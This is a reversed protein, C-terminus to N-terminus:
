NSRALQAMQKIIKPKQDMKVKTSLLFFSYTKQDTTYKSARACPRKSFNYFSSVSFLSLHMYEFDHKSWLCSRLAVKSNQVISSGRELIKFKGSTNASSCIHNSSLPFSSCSTVVVPLDAALRRINGSEPYCCVAM